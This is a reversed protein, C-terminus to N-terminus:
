LTTPLNSPVTIEVLDEMCMRVALAILSILFAITVILIGLAIYDPLMMYGDAYM